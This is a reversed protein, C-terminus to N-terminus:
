NKVPIELPSVIHYVFNGGTYMLIKNNLIIKGINKLCVILSPNKICCSCFLKNWLTGERGLKQSIFICLSNMDFTLFYIFFFRDYHLDQGSFTCSFTVKILIMVANMIICKLSKFLQIFLCRLNKRFISFYPKKFFKRYFQQYSQTKRNM